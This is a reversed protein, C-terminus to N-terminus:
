IFVLLKQTPALHVPKRTPCLIRIFSEIQSFLLYLCLINIISRIVLCLLFFSNFITIFHILCKKNYFQSVSSYGEKPSVPNVSVCPKLPKLTETVSFPCVVPRLSGEGESGCLNM